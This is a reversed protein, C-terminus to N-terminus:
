GCVTKLKCQIVMKRGESECQTSTRSPRTPAPAPQQLHPLRVCQHPRLGHEGGAQAGEGVAEGIGAKGTIM